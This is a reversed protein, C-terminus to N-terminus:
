PLAPPPPIHVHAHIHRVLSSMHCDMAAAVVVAADIDVAATFTAAIIARVLRYFEQARDNSLQLSSQTM